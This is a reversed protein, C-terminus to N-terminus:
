MPPGPSGRADSAPYSATQPADPLPAALHNEALWIVEALSEPHHCQLWDDTAPPMITMFQELAVLEMIKELEQQDPQLWRWASDMVPMLGVDEMITEQLGGYHAAVTGPVQRAALLAEGTLLLTLHLTWEDPARQCARAYKFM